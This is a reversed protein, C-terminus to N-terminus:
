LFWQTCSGQTMLFPRPVGAYCRGHEVCVRGAFAAGVDTASRSELFRSAPYHHISPSHFLLGDYVPFCLNALELLFHLTEFICCNQPPTPHCFFVRVEGKSVFIQLWLLCCHRVHSKPGKLVKFIQVQHFSAFLLFHQIDLFNPLFLSTGRGTNMIDPTPSFFRVLFCAFVRM